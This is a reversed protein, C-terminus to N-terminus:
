GTRVRQSPVALTVPLTVRISRPTHDVTGPIWRLSLAYDIAAADAAAIGSSRIVNVSSAGGDADVQVTLVVTVPHGPQLGARQAFDQLDSYQFRALRPASAPGIIGALADQDADDFQVMKLANVDVPVGDLEIRPLPVKDWQPSQVIIQATAVFTPEDVTVVPRRTFHALPGLLALHAAVILVAVLIKPGM